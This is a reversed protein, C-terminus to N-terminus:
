ILGSEQAGVLAGWDQGGRGFYVFVGLLFIM